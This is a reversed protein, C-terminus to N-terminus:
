RSWLAAPLEHVQMKKREQFSLYVYYTTFYSVKQNKSCCMRHGLASNTEGGSPPPCVDSSALEFGRGADEFGGTALGSVWILDARSENKRWLFLIRCVCLNHSGIQADYKKRICIVRGNRSTIYYWYTHTDILYTGRKHNSLAPPSTPLPSEPFVVVQWGSRNRHWMGRADLQVRQWVPAVSRCGCLM